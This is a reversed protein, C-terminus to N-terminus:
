LNNLSVELETLNSVVASPTVGWPDFQTQVSRQVWATRMGCNAAGIVDFPNSSVLWTDAPALGATSIMHQYVRPDPKFTQLSDVSVIGEFFSSIGASELLAEIDEEVGNSFAYLPHGATKLQSLGTQVDDFAPLQRYEALLSTKQELSLGAQLMSDAYDLAQQTCIRFDQYQGMLGRRFTYELQKERWVRSFETAQEGINEQLRTIVGHPNILTGYIDFAFAKQM